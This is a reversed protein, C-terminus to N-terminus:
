PSYMHNQASIAGEFTTRVWELMPGLLMQDQKSDHVHWHCNSVAFKGKPEPVAFTGQGPGKM